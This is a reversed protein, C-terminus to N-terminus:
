IIKQKQRSSVSLKELFLNGNKSSNKMAGYDM